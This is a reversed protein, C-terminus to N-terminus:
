AEPRATLAPSGRPECTRVLRTREEARAMAAKALEGHLGIRESMEPSDEGIDRNVVSTGVRHLDYWYGRGNRMLKQPTGIFGLVADDILLPRLDHQAARARPSALHLM